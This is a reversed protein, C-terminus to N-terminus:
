VSCITPLTLHTYSVTERSCPVLPHPSTTDDLSTLMLTRAPHLERPTGVAEHAAAVATRIGLQTYDLWEERLAEPVGYSVADGGTKDGGHSVQTDRRLQKEQEVIRWSTVHWLLADVLGKLAVTLGMSSWLLGSVVQHPSHGTWDPYCKILLLYYCRDRICMESGM